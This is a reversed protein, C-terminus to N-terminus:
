RISPHGQPNSRIAAPLRSWLCSPLRPNSGLGHPSTRGSECRNFVLRAVNEVKSACNRKPPCRGFLRKTSSIQRVKVALKRRGLKISFRVPYGQKELSRTRQYSHTARCHRDATGLDVWRTHNCSRSTSSAAEGRRWTKWERRPLSGPPSSEPAM